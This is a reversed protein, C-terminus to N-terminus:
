YSIKFIKALLSTALDLHEEPNLSPGLMQAQSGRNLLRDDFVADRSQMSLEAVIYNFNAAQSPQLAKGLSEYQLANERLVVTQRDPAYIYLFRERNEEDTHAKHSTSRTMVLGSTVLARGMSFKREKVTETETLVTIGIGYLILRIDRYPLILKQGQRSVANLSEVTFEFSRVLFRAKDSEIEEHRLIVADFGNTRLKVVCDEAKELEHFVAIISPGGKSVRLRSRAEYVTKGLAAALAKSLRDEDKELNYVAVINM